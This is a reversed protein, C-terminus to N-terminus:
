LQRPGDVRGDVARPRFHGPLGTADVGCGRRVRAAGAAPIFARGIRGDQDM